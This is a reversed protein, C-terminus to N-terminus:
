KEIVNWDFKYTFLADKDTPIQSAIAKDRAQSDAAAVAVQPGGVPAAASSLGLAQKEEDTFDIPILARMPKNEELASSGFISPAV